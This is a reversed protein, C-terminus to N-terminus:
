GRWMRLPRARLSRGIVVVASDIGAAVSRCARSSAPTCSMTATGSVCWRVSMAAISARGSSRKMWAVVSSSAVAM